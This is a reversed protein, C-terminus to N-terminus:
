TRKLVLWSSRLDMENVWLEVNFDKYFATVYTYFEKITSKEIEARDNIVGVDMDRILRRSVDYDFPREEPKIGAYGTFRPKGTMPPLTFSAGDPTALSVSNISINNKATHTILRTWPSPQGDIWEWGNRGETVVTGDSLSAVFFVRPEPLKPAKVQLTQM